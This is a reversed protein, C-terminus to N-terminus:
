DSRLYSLCNVLTPPPLPRACCCPRLPACRKSLARIFDLYALGSLQETLWGARTRQASLRSAAFSHGRSVVGTELGSKTEDVQAHCPLAHCPMAHSSPMACRLAPDACSLAPCLARMANRVVCAACIRELM